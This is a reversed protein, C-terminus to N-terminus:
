GRPVDAAIDAALEGAAEEVVGVVVLLGRDRLGAIAIRLDPLSAGCKKRVRAIPRVGDILAAVKRELDSVDVPVGGDLALVADPRFVMNPEAVEDITAPRVRGLTYAATM